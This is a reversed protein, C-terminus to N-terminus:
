CGMIFHARIRATITVKCKQLELYRSVQHSSGVWQFVGQHQSLSFAPASPPSLPHSTQIADSVWHVHTQVFKLLHHLVPFGPMSCDMPDCLTPYSQAVSCCCAQVCYNHDEALRHWRKFCDLLDKGSFSEAKGVSLEFPLDRGGGGTVM